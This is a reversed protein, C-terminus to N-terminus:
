CDERTRQGDVMRFVRRENPDRLEVPLAAQPFGQFCVPRVFRDISAGGISTFHPDTTAPYPGGHHMAQCVEIGTPFGNWVIRGVKRELVRVLPAHAALDEDTGHLSATLHGGLTRAVRELDSASACRVVVSAPGFVEDWLQPEAELTDLGVAFIACAAQPRSPDAAASSAGVVAVGPTRRLREVGSRFARAIGEHLMTGVAAQRACSGVARLFSAM